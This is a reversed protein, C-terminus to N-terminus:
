TGGPAIPGRQGEHEGGTDATRGPQNVHPDEYTLPEALAVQWSLSESESAAATAEALRGSASLAASLRELSGALLEVSDPDPDRRALQRCVDVEETAAALADERRALGSYIGRLCALSELLKSDPEPGDVTAMRRRLVVAEEAPPVAEKRRGLALLARARVTLLEALDDEYTTPDEGTLLWFPGIVEEVAALAADSLGMQALQASLVALMGIVDTDTRAPDVKRWRRYVSVAERAAAVGEDTRESLLTLALSSLSQALRPEFTDPDTEALQRYAAITLRAVASSERSRDGESVLLAQLLATLGEALGQQASPDPQNVLRRWIELAQRALYEAQAIDDRQLHLDALSNLTEAVDSEHAAPDVRALDQWIALAEQAATQADALRGLVELALRLSGLSEAVAPLHAEPREHALRRRITLGERVSALGDATRDTVFLTVGLRDLMEALDPEFRDPNDAALRRVIEVAEAQVAVADVDRDVAALQQGLRDLATALDPEWSASREVLRRYLAVAERAIPVADADAGHTSLIEALSILAEGLEPEFGSDARALRRYVAAAEQLAARADRDRGLEALVNSLVSLSDALRNDWSAGAARPPRRVIALAEQVAELAEEPRNLTLFCAAVYSLTGALEPQYEDPASQALRRYITVAEQASDLAEAPRGLASHALALNNLVVALDPAFRGAATEALQRHIAVAEQGSTVADGHRGMNSRALTLSNLAGALEPRYRDPLDEALRRYTSVAEQASDMAEERRGVGSLMASLNASASARADLFADPRAGALRRYIVAAERAADVAEQDRGLEQLLSSAIILSSALLPQSSRPYRTAQGRLLRIAEQASGLAPEALGLSWRVTTLVILNVGLSTEFMEPPVAGLRGPQVFDTIFGGPHARYYPQLAEPGTAALAVLTRQRRVAEDAVVLAEKHRGLENLDLAHVGLQGVIDPEYAGPDAADLAEYMQRAENNATLAEEQRGLGFLRSGLYSLSEALELSVARPRRHGLRRAGHDRTENRYAEVLAAAIQVARVQHVHTYLPIADALAHLLQRDLGGGALLADLASTLPQPHETETAVRAAAPALAPHTTVLRGITDSLQTHDASARALVTFAHHAQAATAAPLSKDLLHPQEALVAGVLHEALRDPQLSAWYQHQGEYLDHLWRATARHLADPQDTLGPTQRVTAIAEDETAATCVTATTVAWRRLRDGDPLDASRSRALRNWYREEHALLVEEPAAAPAAAGHGTQLLEALAAMQIALISGYRPQTLDPERVESALRAWDLGAQGAVQPLRVALGAVARAFADRRGAVTDALQAVEIQPTASPSLFALGPSAVAFERLWDGATRAVLLLRVPGGQGDPLHTGLHHLQHRRTEAYDVVILLPTAVGDLARYANTLRTDAPDEALHLVAWGAEAMSRAFQAALRTKGVGGPGTLLRASLGGAAECWDRLRHLLDDRGHFDVAEVDARLLSAPSTVPWTRAQLDALEVPEAVPPRGAVAGILRRFGGDGVFEAVQVATLRRSGFGIPDRRIVGTLLPGCFLAAGSMGGWPSPNSPPTPEPAASRMSVDLQRAKAGTLPSIEGSLHEVDRMVVQGDPGRVVKVDPFGAAECAVGARAAVLRGWRVPPLDGMAHGPSTIEVLAVDLTETHSSWVVRGDLLDAGAGLLRLKVTAGVDGVVHAATLVLPGAVVYGSGWSRGAYLECLRDRAVV